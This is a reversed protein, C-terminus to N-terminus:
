VVASPLVTSFSPSFVNSMDVDSPACNLFTVNWTAFTLLTSPETDFVTLFPFLTTTSANPDYSVYFLTKERIHRNEHVM